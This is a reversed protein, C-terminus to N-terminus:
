KLSKEYWASIPLRMKTEFFPLVAWSTITGHALILFWLCFALSRTMAEKIVKDEDDNNPRFLSSRLIKVCTQIRFRNKYFKEVKYILAIQTLLM